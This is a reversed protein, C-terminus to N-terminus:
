YKINHNDTFYEIYYGGTSEKSANVSYNQDWSDRIIYEDIVSQLYTKYKENINKSSFSFNKLDDNSIEYISKRFHNLDKSYIEPNLLQLATILNIKKNLLDKNKKNINQDLNFKSLDIPNKDDKVWGLLIEELYYGSEIDLDTKSTFRSIKGETIISYCSKLYHTPEHDALILVRLSLEIIRYIRYEELSKITKEPYGSILVSLILRDTIAFKHIESVKYPLFIINNIYEDINTKQEFYSDAIESVNSFNNFIEKYLNSSLIVGILYKLYEIDNSLFFNTSQFNEFMINEWMWNFNNIKIIDNVTYYKYNLEIKRSPFSEFENFIIKDGDIKANLGKFKKNLKEVFKNASIQDLFKDKNNLHIYTNDIFLDTNNSSLSFLLFQLLKDITDDIPIGKDILDDFLLDHFDLLSFYTSLKIKRFTITNETENVQIATEYLLYIIYNFYLTLNNKYSVPQNMQFFEFEKIYIYKFLFGKMNNILTDMDEKKIKKNLIEIKKDIDFDILVSNNKNDKRYKYTLIDKFEKKSLLKELNSKGIYIAIHYYFSFVEVLINRLDISDKEVVKHNPMEELEEICEKVKFFDNLNIEIEKDGENITFRKTLCYKYKKIVKDFEDENKHNFYYKLLRYIIYKNTNDYTLAEEISKLEDDGEKISNMIKNAMERRLSFNLNDGTLREEIKFEVDKYKEDIKAVFNIIINRKKDEESNCKKKSVKINDFEEFEFERSRKRIWSKNIKDIKSM